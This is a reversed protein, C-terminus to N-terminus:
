PATPLLYTCNLLRAANDPDHSPLFITPRLRAYALLTAYTSRSSKADASIGAVAGSLLQAQSFAADGALVVDYELGRLLVSVHGNTHGPTAVVHVAGDQTLPWSAAFAPLAQKNLELLRPALWTPLRETVAGYPHKWETESLIVEAQRFAALGDVHDLHLHTLVLWRVQQPDLGAAKMQPALEQAGTLSFRLIRQSVWGAPGTGKLSNQEAVEAVEGTDVVLLGEPHEIVWTWIPLWETWRWDLLIQPIGSGPARHSRKVRLCGTAFGHLRMQGIEVCIPPVQPAPPLPVPEPAEQRIAAGMLLVAGAGLFETRTM